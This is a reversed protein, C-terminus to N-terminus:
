SQQVPEQTMAPSPPSPKHPETFLEVLPPDVELVPPVGVVVELEVVLPLLQL